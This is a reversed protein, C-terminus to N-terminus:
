NKLQSIFVIDHNETCYLQWKDIILSRKKGLPSHFGNHNQSASPSTVARSCPPDGLAFVREVSHARGDSCAPLSPSWPCRGPCGTTWTFKPISTIYHMQAVYFIRSESSTLGHKFFSINIFLVYFDMNMHNPSIYIFLQIQITNLYSWKEWPFILYSETQVYLLMCFARVSRATSQPNHSYSKTLYCQLSM